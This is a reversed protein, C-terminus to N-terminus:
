RGEPEGESGSAPEEAPRTTEKETVKEKAHSLPHRYMACPRKPLEQPNKATTEMMEVKSNPNRDLNKEREKKKVKKRKVKMKLKEKMNICNSLDTGFSHITTHHCHHHMSTDVRLDQTTHLRNQMVLPSSFINQM